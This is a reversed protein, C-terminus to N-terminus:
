AGNEPTVDIIPREGGEDIVKQARAMFRTLQDPTMQHLPISDDDAQGEGREVIWKATALRTAAPTKPGLLEKIAKMASNTLDGQIIAARGAKLAAQVAQSRLIHWPPVGPAYGALRHAVKETKGALVERVFREQMPNLSETLGGGQQVPVMASM